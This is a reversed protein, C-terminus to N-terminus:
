RHVGLRENATAAACFGGSGAPNDDDHMAAPRDAGLRGARTLEAHQPHNGNAPCNPVCHVAAAHDDAPGPEPEAAPVTRLCHTTAIV